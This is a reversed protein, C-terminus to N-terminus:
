CLTTRKGKLMGMNKVTLENSPDYDGREMAKFKKAIKKVSKSM